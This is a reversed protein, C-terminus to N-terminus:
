FTRQKGCVGNKMFIRSAKNNNTRSITMLANTEQESSASAEARLILNCTM